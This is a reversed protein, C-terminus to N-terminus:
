VLKRMAISDRVWNVFERYQANSVERADMWFDSVTIMRNDDKQASLVSEDNPGMMFPKGKIYVMGERLAQDQKQGFASAVFLMNVVLVMVPLIRMIKM